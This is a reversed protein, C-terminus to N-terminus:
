KGEVHKLTFVEEGDEKEKEVEYVIHPTGSPGFDLVARGISEKSKEKKTTTDAVTTKWEGESKKLYVLGEWELDKDYDANGRPSVACIYGAENLAYISNFYSNKKDGVDIINSEWSGNKLTAEMPLDNMEGKPEKLYLISPTDNETLAIATGGKSPISGKVDQDVEQFSWEGGKLVGYHLVSENDVYSVHPGNQSDLALSFSNQWKETIGQVEWEGNSLKAYVMGMAEKYPQAFTIHPDNNNDLVIQTVDQPSAGEVVTQKQWSGNDKKAYIVNKDQGYFVLHLVDENDITIAPYVNSSYYEGWESIKEQKWDGGERYAHVINRSEPGLYVAHPDNNSDVAMDFGVSSRPTLGEKITSAGWEKTIEKGSDKQSGLPGSQEGGGGCGAGMLVLAGLLLSPIILKIKRM